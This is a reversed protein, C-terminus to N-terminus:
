IRAVQRMSRMALRFDSSHTRTARRNRSHAVDPSVPPPAVPPPPTIVTATALGKNARYREVEGDGARIRAVQRMSRM